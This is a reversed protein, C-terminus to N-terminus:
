GAHLGKRQGFAKFPRKKRIEISSLFLGSHICNWSFTVQVPYLMVGALIGDDDQRSLSAYALTVEQTQESVLYAPLLM